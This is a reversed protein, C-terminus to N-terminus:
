ARKKKEVTAAIEKPDLGMSGLSNNFVLEEKMPATHTTRGLPGYSSLPNHRTKHPLIDTVTVEYTVAKGALPNNFDLWAYGDEVKLVKAPVKQLEPGYFSITQGVPLKDADPIYRLDRKQISEERYEGFADKPELRVTYTKNPEMQQIADDLGRILQDTGTEYEIPGSQESSDFITGDDLMAKFEARINVNKGIM